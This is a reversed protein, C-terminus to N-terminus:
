ATDYAPDNGLDILEVHAPLNLKQFHSRIAEVIHRAEGASPGTNRPHRLALQIHAVLILATNVDIELPIHFNIPLSEIERQLRPRLEELKMHGRTSLARAPPKRQAPVQEQTQPTEPQSNKSPSLLNKRANPPTHM